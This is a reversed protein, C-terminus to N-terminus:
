PAVRILRIDDIYLKGAGGAKPAARDGVGVTLKKIRTIDVGASTLVSLPVNLSKWAGAAVANRDEHSVVKSKGASDEVVVYFTDPTNGAPQAVGIDTPQWSAGTVAGTTAINSFEGVTAIAADHSCVALGIYCDTGMPVSQPNWVMSTWTKGDPSYSAKFDNGTRELKIWVPAQLAMQEPTAVSTDSTADGNATARIRFRVGHRSTLFVGAYAAGPTLDGRIVLGALSWEHADVLSDVRAVITGNGSLSRYAYHFEDATKFIDTGIGNMVIGDAGVAQFSTPTGWFSVALTNAGGGVVWSQPTAWERTTESYFPSKSNDYEFPMSQKGSRVTTQDAFPANLNGVTSGTGNGGAAPVGCEASGSNGYGDLWKFFIRNCVDDYAEFDDVTSHDATSFSWVQGAWSTPTAADNVENVKWYYTRGYEPSWSSLSDQHGTLSMVPATGNDVADRDTGLVLEHRAAERGPRWNLTANLAVGAAGDVPEPLYSQVPVYFFRVESLGCQSAGWTANVTLKVYKAPAGGFDVTTNHAYGDKGPGAQFEPVGALATWTTGDTSVEIGVTKAGFHMIPEATANCNWVWMQHLKYVRDFEYQIWPPSQGGTGSLWMGGLATSHLGDPDLGSHNVTNQPVTDAQLSGSATATIPTTLAYAYTEATFSWLTGKILSSDSLTEDIRWTYDKGFEFLGAPDLTNADQAQSLLLGKPDTRTAADIDDRSAGFYVDHAVAGPGPTWVLAADRPVDVAGNAPRPMVAARPDGLVFKIAAGLLAYANDNWLLYGQEDFGFCIRIDAAIQPSPPTDTPATPLAAGKPYMYLVDYTQGGTLTARAIVTAKSGAVGDGFRANGRAGTIATLVPVTGSLGAALPHGPAVIQIDTTLVAPGTIAPGATLGMEDWAWAESIIMPVELGTIEYRIQQSSCSESIFVLGAAAAATRTDAQNVNDDLYEVTYGLGEMYAKLADDGAQMDPNMASIFLIDVARGETALLGLSIGLLLLLKTFGRTSM